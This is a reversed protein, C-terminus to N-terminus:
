DNIFKLIRRGQEINNKNSLVFQSAKLGFSRLELESHSLVQSIANAYGDVTEEKFLFVYKQYEVPMGPLNTTLLPTGSAMYEMNKSPFSYKTYEESTFRPNVLLSAKLEEAVIIDNPVVGRYELNSYKACLLKFEEVYSGSGYYILKADKVGAKIFGEALMKLGYKESIGGAYIVTRPHKKNVNVPKEYLLSSDCVAEMVIYPRRKTNVVENMQETLLIYKNFSNCYWRNLTGALSSMFSKPSGVMMGYIDTVIAINMVRNIKTAFLAGMCISVSLIDCIIAKDNRGKAGWFLVYFFTYLFLCLHKIMPFNFYPIYKYRIGNETENVASIYKRKGAINPPNSFALVRAGNIKLGEVLLRSFKQIAFGPNAGTRKYEENVRSESALASVYLITKIKM